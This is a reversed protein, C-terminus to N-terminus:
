VILLFSVVVLVIRLLAPSLLFLPLSLFFVVEVVAVVVVALVVANVDDDNM